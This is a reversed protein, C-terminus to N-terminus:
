ADVVKIPIVGLCYPLSEQLCRPCSIFLDDLEDDTLEICKTVRGARSAANVKDIIQEYMTKEAVVRM